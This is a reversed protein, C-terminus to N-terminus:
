VIKGAFYFPSPKNEILSPKVAIKKWVLIDFMGLGANKVGEFAEVLSSRRRGSRSGTDSQDFM